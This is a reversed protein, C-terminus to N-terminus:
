KKQKKCKLLEHITEEKKVLIITRDETVIGISQGIKLKKANKSFTKFHQIDKGEQRSKNEVPKIFYPQIIFSCNPFDAELNYRVFDIIKKTPQHDKDGVLIWYTGDKKFEYVQKIKEQM